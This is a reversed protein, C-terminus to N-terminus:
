VMSPNSGLQLTLTVNSRRIIAPHSVIVCLYPLACVHNAAVGGIAPPWPVVCHKTTSRPAQACKAPKSVTKFGLHLLTAMSEEQMQLIIRGWPTRSPPISGGVVSKDNLAGNWPRDSRVLEKCSISASSGEAQALTKGRCFAMASIVSSSPGGRRHSVANHRRKTLKGPYGMCRGVRAIGKLRERSLTAAAQVAHSTTPCSM